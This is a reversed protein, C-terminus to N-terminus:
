ERWVGTLPTSFCASTSNMFANARSKLTGHWSEDVVESRRRVFDRHVVVKRLDLALSLLPMDVHWPVHPVQPDAPPHARPLDRIDHSPGCSLSATLPDSGTRIRWLQPLCSTRVPSKELEANGEHSKEM